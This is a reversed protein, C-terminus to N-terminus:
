LATVNRERRERGDESPASSGPHTTPFESNQIGFESNGLAAEPLTLVNPATEHDPHGIRRALHLWAQLGNLLRSAGGSSWDGRGRGAAVVVGAACGSLRYPSGVLVVAQHTAAHRAIRLWAALPARGRVPPLGLDLAVLPFGTHVLLETAALSDGLNQPRLWLLRELDIGIEAAAQPDLQAGQDVFAAAEGAGTVARLTALLAAFRGCSGRGVLEVLEGRPLGGGLLRDLGALSTPLPAERLEARRKRILDSARHLSSRLEDPLEFHRAPLAKTPKLAPIQQATGMM